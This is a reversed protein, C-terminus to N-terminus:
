PGVLFAAIQTVQEFLLRALPEDRNAIVSSRIM